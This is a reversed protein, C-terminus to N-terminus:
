LYRPLQGQLYALANEVAWECNSRVEEDIWNLMAAKLTKAAKDLETELIGEEVNDNGRIGLISSFALYWVCLIRIFVPRDKPHFRYIPNFLLGIEKYGIRREKFASEYMKKFEVITIRDIDTKSEEVLFDVTAGIETDNLGQLLYKSPDSERKKRWGGVRPSYDITPCYQHVFEDDSVYARHSVRLLEYVLKDAESYNAFSRQLITKSQHYTLTPHLIHFGLEIVNENCSGMWSRPMSVDETNGFDSWESRLFLAEISRLSVSLLQLPYQLTDHYEGLNYAPKHGWDREARKRFAEAIEEIPQNSEVALNRSLLPYQKIATNFDVNHLLPIISTGTQELMNLADLEKVTFFKDFFVPSLIVIGCHCEILGSNIRSLINDGPLLEIEDFWVRLGRQKLAHFLPRAIDNKDERAHSLFFDFPKAAVNTEVM